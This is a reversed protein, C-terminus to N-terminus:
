NTWVGMVEGNPGTLEDCSALTLKGLLDGSVSINHAGLLQVVAKAFQLRARPIGALENRLDSVTDITKAATGM